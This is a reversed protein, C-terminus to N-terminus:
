RWEHDGDSEYVLRTASSDYLQNVTIPCEPKGDSESETDPYDNRYFDEENSDEDAEDKVSDSEEEDALIDGETPPLGSRNPPSDTSTPAFPTSYPMCLGSTPWDM